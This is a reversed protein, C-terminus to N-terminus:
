REEEKKKEAEEMISLVVGFEITFAIGLGLYPNSAVIGIIAGVLIGILILIINVM